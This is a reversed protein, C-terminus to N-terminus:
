KKFEKALSRSGAYHNHGNTSVRTNHVDAYPNRVDAKTNLCKTGNYTLFIPRGMTIFHM